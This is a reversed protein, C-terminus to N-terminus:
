EYLLHRRRRRLFDDLGAQWGAAVEAPGRGDLVARYSARHALLKLLGDPEWDNGFEARLVCALGIGLGVPEFADRDTIALFVGGCPTGAHQREAPTFRIPTFRVGPLGLGHLAAAFARPEIWPAGVREFP